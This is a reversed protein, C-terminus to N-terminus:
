FTQLPIDLLNVFVESAGSERSTPWQLVVRAFPGAWTNECRSM